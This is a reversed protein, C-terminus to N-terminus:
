RTLFEYYEEALQKAQELTARTGIPFSQGDGCYRAHYKYEELYTVTIYRERSHIKFFAVNGSEWKLRPEPTSSITPPNM